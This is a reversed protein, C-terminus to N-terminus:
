VNFQRFTKDPAVFLHLTLAEIEDNSLFDAFHVISDLFRSRFVEHRIRRPEVHFPGIVSTCKWQGQIHNESECFLETM